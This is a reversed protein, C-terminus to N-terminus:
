KRKRRKFTSQEKTRTFPNVFEKELEEIEVDYNLIDTGHMWLSFFVDLSYNQSWLRGDEFTSIRQQTDCKVCSYILCGWDCFPIVDKPWDGGNEEGCNKLVNYTSVVDGFDSAYGDQLGIIGLGPGFGGNGIETYFSRLLPPISVQLSIETDRVDNSTAIPFRTRFARGECFSKLRDLLDVEM